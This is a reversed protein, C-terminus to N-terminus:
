NIKIYVQGGTATTTVNVETRSVEVMGFSEESNDWCCFLLKQKESSSHSLGM